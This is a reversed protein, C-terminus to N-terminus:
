TTEEHRSARTMEKLGAEKEKLDRPKKRLPAEEKQFTRIREFPLAISSIATTQQRIAEAQHPDELHAVVKRGLNICETKNAVKAEAGM